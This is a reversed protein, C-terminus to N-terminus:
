ELIDTSYIKIGIGGHSVPNSVLTFPLDTKKALIDSSTILGVRWGSFREKLVSGLSQYLPYLPKKNGIRGGYPPNIIVLGKPGEPPILDSISQEQFETYKQVGARTANTQSMAIAGADRDFGYFRVPPSLSKQSTRLTKWAEPEFSVLKEFAFHRSRGPNLYAAIEAAEIVFTGSGCMPDVVPEKGKYGCQRLMLAALNERMPAKNVVVKHDRKHLLEGSTDVSITCMDNLIRVKVNIDADASVPAGLEEKIANAVREAAAKEHYIRSGKCSAEVKISTEPRLVDAWPIQRSRKDLQSLHVVRFTAIRVLIKSAGRIVLNARWVDSWDGKISVGGKDAVPKKFGKEIAEKRLLDELGPATVLFIELVTKEKM